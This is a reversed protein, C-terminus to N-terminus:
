LHGAEMVRSRQYAELLHSGEVEVVQQLFSLTMRYLHVEVVVEVM